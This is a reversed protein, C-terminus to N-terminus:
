TPHLLMLKHFEHSTKLVTDLTMKERKESWFVMKNDKSDGNWNTLNKQWVNCGLKWSQSHKMVLVPNLASAKKSLTVVRFFNQVCKRQEDHFIFDKTRSEKFYPPYKTIKDISPLKANDPSPHHKKFQSMSAKVCRSLECLTNELIAHTVQSGLSEKLEIHLTQYTEQIDKLTTVHPLAYKIIKAPGLSISKIEAYNYCSLPILGLLASIQIFLNSGMQGVGKFYSDKMLDNIIGSAVSFMSTQRSVTESETYFRKCLKLLAERKENWKTGINGQSFTYRNPKCSGVSTSTIEKNVTILFNYMSGSESLVTEYKEVNSMITRYIEAVLVTGNCRFAAYSIFDLTDAVNFQVFNM